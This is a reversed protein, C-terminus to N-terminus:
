PSVNLSPVSCHAQYQFLNFFGIGLEIEIEGEALAAGVGIFVLLVTERPKLVTIYDILGKPRSM